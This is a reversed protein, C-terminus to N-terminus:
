GDLRLSVAQEEQRQSVAQEEQRQSMAQEEQRQSKVHVEQGPTPLLSPRMYSKAESCAGGAWTHAAAIAAHIVKRAGASHVLAVLSHQKARGCPM